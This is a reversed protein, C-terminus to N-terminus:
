LWKFKEGWRTSRAPPLISSPFTQSLPAVTAPLSRDRKTKYGEYYGKTGM